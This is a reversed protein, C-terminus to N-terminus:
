AWRRARCEKGVRREESRHAVPRVIANEKGHKGDLAVHVAQLLLAARLEVASAMRRFPHRSLRRIGPARANEFKPLRQQFALSQIEAHRRTFAALRCRM